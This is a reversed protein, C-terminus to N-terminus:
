ASRAKRRRVIFYAALGAVLVGNAVLFLVKLTGSRKAATARAQYQARAQDIVEGLQGPNAPVEYTVGAKGEAEPFTADNVSTGPATYKLEFREEPWPKVDFETVRYQTVYLPSGFLQSESTEEDPPGPPRGTYAEVRCLRPAWLARGALREHETCDSRTLLRGAEDRTELRRVAYAREPDLYFDYRRQPAPREQFKRAARLKRQVEEEPVNGAMRVLREYGEMDVKRGQLRWDKATVQVRLLPRGDLDAPGTAEVRGGEALLALLESQPRWPGALHRVRTPVRVGAARFYDDSFYSGDPDDKAPLWKILVAGPKTDKPKKERPNGLYLVNGDFSYENTRQMGGKMERRQYVRGDRFAYQLVKSGYAVLNTLAQAPIKERGTPTPEVSESWTVALPDLEAYRALAARVSEPLGADQAHLRHGGALTICAAAAVALRRVFSSDSM